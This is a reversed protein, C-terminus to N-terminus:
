PACPFAADMYSYLNTCAGSSVGPEGAMEALLPCEGYPAPTLVHTSGDPCTVQGSTFEIKLSGVPQQWTDGYPSYDRTWTMCLKGGHWWEGSSSGSSYKAGNAWCVTYNNYEPVAIECEGAPAFCALALAFFQEVCAPCGTAGGAGGTASTGGSGGLSADVIM